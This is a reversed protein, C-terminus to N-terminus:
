FPATKDNLHLWTKFERLLVAVDKTNGSARQGLAWQLAHLEERSFPNNLDYMEDQQEMHRILIGCLERIKEDSCTTRYSVLKILLSRFPNMGRKSALLRDTDLKYITQQETFRFLEKDKCRDKRKDPEYYKFRFYHAVLSAFITLLKGRDDYMSLTNRISQYQRENGNLEIKFWRRVSSRISFELRWIQPTYISGDPRKKTVNHVDDILGAMAWAQRIYPKKYTKSHVDYLEITKNYFKTGIDSTLAGWSLSNFSLESWTEKGHASIHCQNIKRYKNALYRRVFKQPDDGTDFKEFDLCIDIRSIRRFEYGNEQIFAAMKAAADDFYCSRNVLRLHCENPQLIGKLGSSKPKRRVEIFPQYDSGDLTFMQEYVRTGYERETVFWGLSRYYDPDRPESIPELCHVELWDINVCRSPM